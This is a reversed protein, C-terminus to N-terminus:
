EQESPDKGQFDKALWENARKGLIIKGDIRVAYGFPDEGKNIGDIDICFRKYIRYTAIGNDMVVLSPKGNYMRENYLSAGWEPTAVHCDGGTGDYICGFPNQLNQEYYYVDDVTLVGLTDGDFAKQSDLCTSDLLEGQENDTYNRVCKGNTVTCYNLIGESDTINYDCNKRKTNVVESFAECFASRRNKGVLEGSKLKGLDGEEFYEGSNALERIVNAFTTDAKKFKMVKKDPISNVVLPTLIGTLVGIVVLVIM